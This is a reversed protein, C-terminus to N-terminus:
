SGTKVTLITGTGDLYYVGRDADVVHLRKGNESYLEVLLGGGSTTSYFFPMAKIEAGDNSRLVVTQRLTFKLTCNGKARHPAEIHVMLPLTRDLYETHTAPPRPLSWSM